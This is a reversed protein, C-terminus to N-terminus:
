IEKHTKLLSNQIDIASILSTQTEQANVQHAPPLHYQPPDQVLYYSMHFIIWM